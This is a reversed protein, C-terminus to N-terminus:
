KVPQTAPLKGGASVLTTMATEIPVTTEFRIAKIQEERLKDRSTSSASEYKRATELTYEYNYYARVGEVVAATLIVGVVGTTIIASVNLGQPQAM